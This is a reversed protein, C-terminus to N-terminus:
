WSTLVQWCWISAYSINWFRLTGFYYETTKQEGWHGDANLRPRLLPHPRFAFQIEDRYKEALELMADALENFSSYGYIDPCNEISHHPAWIVKKKLRPQEKWVNKQSHGDFFRDLKPYGLFFSNEGKNCSYRESLPLAMVSEWFLYTMQYHLPYDFIFSQINSLFYGYPVFCTIADKAQEFFADM